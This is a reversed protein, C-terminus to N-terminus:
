LRMVGECVRDVSRKGRAAADGVKTRTVMITRGRSEFSVM